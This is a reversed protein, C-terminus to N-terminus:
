KGFNCIVNVLRDDVKLSSKASNKQQRTKLLWRTSPHTIRASIAGSLFSWICLFCVYNPGPSLWLSHFRDPRIFVIVFETGANIKAATLNPWRSIRMLWSIRLFNRKELPASFCIWSPIIKLGEMFLCLSSFSQEPLIKYSLSNILVELNKKRLRRSSLEWIFWKDSKKTSIEARYYIKKTKQFRRKAFSRQKREIKSLANCCQQIINQFMYINM